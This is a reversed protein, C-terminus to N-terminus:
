TSYSIFLETAAKKVKEDYPIRIVKASGVTGALIYVAEDWYGGLAPQNAIAVPAGGALDLRYLKGRASFAISRSDPAWFPFAAEETGDLWRAGTRRFAPAM